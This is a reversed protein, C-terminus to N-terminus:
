DSIGYLEKMKQILLVRGEEFFQEAPICDDEFGLPTYNPTLDPWKSRDFSESLSDNIDGNEVSETVDEENLDDRFFMEARFCEEYIRKFDPEKM